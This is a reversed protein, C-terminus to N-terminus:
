PRHGASGNFGDLPKALIEAPVTKSQGRAVQHQGSRRETQVRNAWAIPYGYRHVTAFQDFGPDDSQDSRLGSMIRLLPNRSQKALLPSANARLDRKTLALRRHHHPSHHRLDRDNAGGPARRITPLRRARRRDISTEGDAEM